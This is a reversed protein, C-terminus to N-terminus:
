NPLQGALVFNAKEVQGPVSGPVEDLETFIKVFREKLSKVILENGARGVWLTRGIRFLAYFFLKSFFFFIASSSTLTQILLRM